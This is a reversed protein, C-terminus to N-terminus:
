APKRLPACVACDPHTGDHLGPKPPMRIFSEEAGRQPTPPTSDRGTRGTPSLGTIDAHGNLSKRRYREQAEAHSSKRQYDEFDHVILREGGDQEELLGAAILAPIAKHHSGLTEKLAGKSFASRGRIKAACLVKIFAFRATDNPLGVIKDHWPMDADVRLWTM